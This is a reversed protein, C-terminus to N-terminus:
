GFTCYDFVQMVAFAWCEEACPVRAYQLFALISGFTGESNCSIMASSSPPKKVKRFMALQFVMVLLRRKVFTGV